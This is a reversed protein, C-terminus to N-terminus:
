AKGLLQKHIEFEQETIDEMTLGAKQAVPLFKAL